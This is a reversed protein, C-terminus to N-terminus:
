REKLWLGAPGSLMATPGTSGIAARRCGSPLRESMSPLRLSGPLGSIRAPTATTARSPHVRLPAADGRDLGPV